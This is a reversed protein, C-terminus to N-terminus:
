RKKRYPNKKVGPRDETNLIEAEWWKCDDYGDIDCGWHSELDWSLSLSCPFCPACICFTAFSLPHATAALSPRSIHTFPVLMINSWFLAVNSIQIQFLIRYATLLELLLLPSLFLISMEPWLNMTLIPFLIFGLTKETASLPPHFSSSHSIPHLDFSDVYNFVTTLPPLPM